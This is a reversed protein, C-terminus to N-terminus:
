FSHFNQLEQSCHEGGLSCPRRDEEANWARRPRRQCRAPALFPKTTAEKLKQAANYTGLRRRRKEEEETKVAAATAMAGNLKQRQRLAKWDETVSAVAGSTGQASLQVM